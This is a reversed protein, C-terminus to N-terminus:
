GDQARPPAASVQRGSFDPAAVPGAAGLLTFSAAAAEGPALRGRDSRRRALALAPDHTEALDTHFEVMLDRTAHDPVPNVPAVVTSAGLALLAASLGLLEEGAYVSTAGAQCAPLAFLWPVNDLLELDYVSLSGDRLRLASFMANDSRFSGHSAIHAIGATRMGDSVAGVTAREGTLLTPAALLGAVDDVEAAAGPLGPGAVVLSGTEGRRRRARGEAELWVRASPTVVTHAARCTPLARWALQHLSSTPVVVLDRGDTERRLPRLLVDDLATASAQLASRAAHESAATRTGRALRDIAFRLHDVDTEVEAFPGLDRHSVRGDHHVLAHLRGDLVFYEM